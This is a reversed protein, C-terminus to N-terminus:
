AETYRNTIPLRRDKGFSKPTIKVGPPAQRRKYENKDVMSIVKHVTSRKKRHRAITEFSKDEEIYEKLIADLLSYPPLSDQDKQGKRLEASPARTIISRPIIPQAQLRNYEKALTYVLTKSVDKIVAFGGAMDGYLTCYGVATESKNGTTLVLWGFKNSLAMLLNGRIRAQINEEAADAKKGKFMKQLTKGYAACVSQIPIEHFAINLNKALQRADSKTGKSSYRSPMSVGAVNQRGLADVAIAATLASDIGGSLGIVVKEFGNKRVYDRTGLVLANYIESTSSLRKLKSRKKLSRHTHPIDVCVLDEKFQQACVCTKGKADVFLSGGDFVLEDQGGVLNVYCVSAGTQQARKQMLQERHAHKSAHFPSASINIICQAGHSVEDLYVGEEEWIDECVTLGFTVSGKCFVFGKEGPTFYRAEDFVGYNPLTNKRYVDVVRGKDILAAANFIAGSKDVDVFGIIATTTTIKKAIKKLLTVNDRVFHKKLLLDEPPYGCLTLEPFIILDAKQACAQQTYSIIKEANGKLDGVTTNIQALAIRITKAM